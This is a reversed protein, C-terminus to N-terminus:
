VRSRSSARRHRGGPHGGAALRRGLGRLAWSVERVDTFARTCPPCRDLHTEVRRQRSPVLYGKIYDHMAARTARCEPQNMRRTPAVDASDLGSSSSLAPLSSLVSRLTGVDARRAADSGVGPDTIRPGGTTTVRIRGKRRM